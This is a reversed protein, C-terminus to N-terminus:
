RRAAPREIRFEAAIGAIRRSTEGLEDASAQVAELRKVTEVMGSDIDRMATAIQAIGTSQQQVAGAIERAADSTERVIGGLDRLSDGSARIRAASGEVGRTGETTQDLTAQIAAQIDRVIRAIRDAGKGSQDALGRVEAAVVAFGKGAEGARAAELSANLSLVHSQAALDRVTEVVDGAQRAQELLHASREAIRQVSTQITQLGDASGEAAAHGADSVQGARLAVDLVAAARSAALSATHELERTTVGTESVGSAAREVIGVQARTNESLRGAAAALSVSADQLTAVLARLRATMRGFSQALQGIEDKSRVDIEETLDGESIRLAARNLARVPRAISLAVLYGLLTAGLAALVLVVASTLVSRRQLARAQELGAAMAARAADTDEALEDSLETYADIMERLAAAHRDGHRDEILGLTAERSVLHYGELSGVLARARAPDLAEAPMAEIDSVLQAHHEDALELLSAEEASAADQLLRQREALGAELEQAVRLAPLHATEVADLERAARTTLVSIVGTAVLTTAASLLAPAVIKQRFSLALPV